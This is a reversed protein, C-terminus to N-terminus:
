GNEVALLWVAPRHSGRKAGKQRKPACKRGKEETQVPQHWWPIIPDKLFAGFFQRLPRIHRVGLARDAAARGPRAVTQQRDERAVGFEERLHANEGNM